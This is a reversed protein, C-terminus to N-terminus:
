NNNGQKGGFCPIQIREQPPHHRRTYDTHHPATRLSPVAVKKTHSQDRHHRDLISLSSKARHVTLPTPPCIRSQKEHQKALLPRNPTLKCFIQPEYQFHQNKRRKRASQNHQLYRLNLRLHVRPRGQPPRRIALEGVTTSWQAM